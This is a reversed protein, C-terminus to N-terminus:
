KKILLLAFGGVVLWLLWSREPPAPGSVQPPAPWTEDVLLVLEGAANIRYGAAIDAATLGDTTM